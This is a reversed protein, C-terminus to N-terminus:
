VAHMCSSLSTSREATTRSANRGHRTRVSLPLVLLPAYRNPGCCPAIDIHPAGPRWAPPPPPLLSPCFRTCSASLTLPTVVPTFNRNSPRYISPVSAKDIFLFIKELFPSRQENILECFELVDITGSHDVDFIDFCEKMTRVDADALKRLAISHVAVPSLSGYDIPKKLVTRVRLWAPMRQVKSFRLVRKEQTIMRDAISDVNASRRLGAAEAKKLMAKRPDEAAQTLSRLHSPPM